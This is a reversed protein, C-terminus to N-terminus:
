KRLDASGTDVFYRVSKIERIRVKKKAQKRQRERDKRKHLKEHCAVCMLLVDDDQERGLHWYNLHHLQFVSIHKHCKECTQKRQQYIRERLMQWHRTMLYENYTSSIEGTSCVINIFGFKKTM